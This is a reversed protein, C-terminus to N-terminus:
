TEFGVADPYHSTTRPPSVRHPSGCMKHHAAPRRTERVSLGHPMLMMCEGPAQVSAPPRAPM